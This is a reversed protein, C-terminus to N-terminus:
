APEVVQVVNTATQEFDCGMDEIGLELNGNETIAVRFHYERGDDTRITFSQFEDGELEIEM